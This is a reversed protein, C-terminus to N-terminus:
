VASPGKESGSSRAGRKRNCSPTWYQFVIGVICIALCGVLLGIVAPKIEVSYIDRSQALLALITRAALSFGTQLWNDAFCCLSFAGGLSTTLIILFKQVKDCLALLGFILCASGVIAYYQWPQSLQQMLTRRVGNIEVPLSLAFSAIWFGLFAGLAFLGVKLVCVALIGGLLGGGLGSFLCWKYELSTSQRIFIFVIAFGFWFGALFLTLKLLRYGFLLMLLGFVFLLGLGADNSYQMWLMETTNFVQLAVNGLDDLSVSSNTTNHVGGDLSDLISPLQLVAYNRGKHPSALGLGLGLSLFLLFCLLRM